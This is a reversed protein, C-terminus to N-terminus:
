NAAGITKAAAPAPEEAPAQGLAEPWGRGTLVALAGVVCAVAATVYAIHYGHLTGSTGASASASAVVVLVAVGVSSGIQQATVNVAGGVGHQHQPIGTLSAATMAPFGFGQGIGCLVLGPLVYWYNGDLPTLVWTLVGLGILTLSATMLGRMGLKGFLKPTFFNSVVFVTLPNAITALGSEVPSFGLMGQLYLPAFFLLGISATCFLFATLSSARVPASRFVSLPLLPQATTSERVVFLVLMIAAAVLSVITGADEWGSQGGRSVGFVALILGVTVTIAGPADVPQSSREGAPLAAKIGALVVAGFLVLFVLVARWSFVQTLVGGLVLGGSISAAGVGAYVSFAKNRAPGEPFVETLLALAAPGSLAAGVGQVARAVILLAVNPAVAGALAGVTFLVVGLTFVFRRGLVDALRGGFLLFGAFTVAYSTMAWQLTADSLHFQEGIRPLAANMVALGGLDLALAGCLVGLSLRQLSRGAPATTDAPRPSPNTGM